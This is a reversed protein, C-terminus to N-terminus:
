HADGKGTRKGDRITLTITYGPRTKRAKWSAAASQMEDRWNRDIGYVGEIAVYRIVIQPPWRSAGPSIGPQRSSLSHCHRPLFSHMASLCTM